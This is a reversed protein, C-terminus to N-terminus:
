EVASHTEEAQMHSIKELVADMELHYLVVMENLYDKDIIDDVAEKAIIEEKEHASLTKDQLSKMLNILKEKSYFLIKHLANLDSLALDNNTALANAEDDTIFQDDYNDLITALKEMYTIASEVETQVVHMMDTPVSNIMLLRIGSLKENQRLQLYCGADAPLTFQLRELANLYDATVEEKYCYTCVVSQTHKFHTDVRNLINSVTKYASNGESIYLYNFAAVPLLEKIDKERIDINDENQDLTLITHIADIHEGLTVHLLSDNTFPILAINSVLLMKEAYSIADSEKLYLLLPEKANTLASIINFTIENTLHSVVIVQRYESICTYELKILEINEKRTPETVEILSLANAAVDDLAIFQLPRM